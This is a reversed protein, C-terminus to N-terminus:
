TNKVMQINSIGTAMCKVTKTDVLMAAVKKLFQKVKVMLCITQGNVQTNISQEPGFEM